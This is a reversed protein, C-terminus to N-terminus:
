HSFLYNIVDEGLLKLVILWKVIFVWWDINIGSRMILLLPSLWPHGDLGLLRCIIPLLYFHIMVRGSNSFRQSKNWLNTFNFIQPVSGYLYNNFTAISFCVPKNWCKGSICIYLCVCWIMIEFVHGCYYLIFDVLKIKFLYIFRMLATSFVQGHDFILDEVVFYATCYKECNATLILQHDMDLRWESWGMWWKFTISSCTNLWITDSPPSTIVAKRFETEGTTSGQREGQTWSM